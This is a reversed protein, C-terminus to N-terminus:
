ELLYTLDIPTQIGKAKLNARLEVFRNVPPKVLITHLTIGLNFMQGMTYFLKDSSLVDKGHVMANAVILFDNEEEAITEDPIGAIALYREILSAIAKAEPAEPLYSSCFAELARNTLVTAVEHPKGHKVVLHKYLEDEIIRTHFVEPNGVDRLFKDAQNRRNILINADLVAQRGTLDPLEPNMNLKKGCSM